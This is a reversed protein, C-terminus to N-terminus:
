INRLGTALGGLDYGLDTLIMFGAVTYVLFKIIKGFFAFTTGTGKINFKELLNTYTDTSCNFLNAIGNAILLITCIRFITTITGFINSPLRLVLLGLYIGLIVFFLKLPKYFSHETIKKISKVKFNFIKVITYALPASIIKFFIIIGLAIGADRITFLDINALSNILDNIYDM